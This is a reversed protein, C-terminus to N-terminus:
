WCRACKKRAEHGKCSSPSGSNWSRTTGCRCWVFLFSNRLAPSARCCRCVEASEGVLAWSSSPATRFCGLLLFLTWSHHESHSYHMYSIHMYRHILLLFITSVLLWHCPIFQHGVWRSADFIQALLRQSKSFCSMFHHFRRQFQGTGQLTVGVLLHLFCITAM